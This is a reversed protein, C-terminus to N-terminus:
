QEVAIVPRGTPDFAFGLSEYVRVAGVAPEQVEIYTCGIMVAYNELATLAPAAVAGRL